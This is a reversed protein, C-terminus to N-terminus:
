GLRGGVNYIVGHEAIQEMYAIITKATEAANPRPTMRQAIFGVSLRTSPPSRMQGELGGRRSARREWNAGPPERNVGNGRWVIGGMDLVLGM